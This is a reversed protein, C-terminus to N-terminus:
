KYTAEHQRRCMGSRILAEEKRQFLEGALQQEEDIGEELDTWWRHRKM